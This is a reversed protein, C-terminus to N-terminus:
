AIIWDIADDIDAEDYKLEGRFWIEYFSGFVGSVKVVALNGDILTEGNHMRMLKNRVLEKLTM